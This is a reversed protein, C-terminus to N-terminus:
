WYNTLRINFIPFAKLEITKNFEFNRNPLSYIKGYKKDSFQFDIAEGILKGNFLIKIGNVM